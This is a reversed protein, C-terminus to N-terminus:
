VKRLAALAEMAWYTIIFGAGARKMALLSELFSAEENLYGAQAAAKLMSYEGSVQYAGVPLASKERALRILDLCPMGPKILLMDAGEAEDNMIERTAERLSGPDMQYGRRDGFEPANEAADRFPGYFSSALKVSYSCIAVDPHGEADLAGRIHRVMGDVMGSPAVVNAGAEAYETSMKGLGVLTEAHERRSELGSITIPGCHGHNTYECFCADAFLNVETGFDKRFARLARVVPGERDWAAEGSATKTNKGVIGFLIFSRVGAEVARAAFPRVDDVTWQRVGPMSTIDRSSGAPLDNIFLPLVVDSPRLAFEQLLFRLSKQRRIREPGMTM